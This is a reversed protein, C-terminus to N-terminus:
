PSSPMAEGLLETLAERLGPHITKLRQIADLSFWRAEALEDSTEIKLALPACLFNVLRDGTYPDVHEVLKRVIEVSLCLEERVERKLADELSEGSEVSGAPLLWDGYDPKRECSHRVLLVKGDRVITACVILALWGRFGTVSRPNSKKESPCQNNWRLSADEEKPYFPKDTDVHLCM